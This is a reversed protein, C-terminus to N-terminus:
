GQGSRAELLKATWFALRKECVDRNFGTRRGAEVSELLRQWVVLQHNIERLDPHGPIMAGETM